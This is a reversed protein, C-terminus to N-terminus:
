NNILEKKNVINNVEEGQLVNCATKAAKEHLLEASEVSKYAIHPTVIVNRFSLLEHKSDILPEIELVDLGAGGIQNKQLADILDNQHILAGRSTNILIANNKMISLSDKNILHRTEETLPSHLSIVDAERFLKELNVKEVGYSSFAEEPLFPDYAIQKFGFAATYKAVERAIKGFGVLGLTQTTLRRSRPSFSDNWEGAAVNLNLAKISRSLSLILSVAHTAVEETCYDPINCVKIGRSTAAELDVNDYGIGYRVIVKCNQLKTIVNASLNQFVTMVADADQCLKLIEEDTFCNGIQFDIGNKRFIEKEIEYGDTLSRKDILVAKMEM